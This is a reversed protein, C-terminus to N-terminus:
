TQAGQIIRSLGSRELDKVWDCRRGYLTIFTRSNPYPCISYPAVRWGVVSANALEPVIPLTKSCFGGSHTTTGSNTTTKSLGMGLPIIITFTNGNWIISFESKIRIIYICLPDSGKTQIWSKFLPLMHSCHCSGSSPTDEMQSEWRTAKPLAEMERLRQTNM